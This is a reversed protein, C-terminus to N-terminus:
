NKQHCARKWWAAYADKAKFVQAHPVAEFEHAFCLTNDGLEELIIIELPSPFLFFSLKVTYEEGASVTTGMDFRSRVLDGPNFTM